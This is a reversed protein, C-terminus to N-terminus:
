KPDSAYLVRVLGETYIPRRGVPLDLVCELFQCAFEMWIQM